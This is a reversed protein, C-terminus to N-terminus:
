NLAAHIQAGVLDEGDHSFQENNPHFLLLSVSGNRPNLRVSGSHVQFGSGPHQHPDESVWLSFTPLTRQVLNGCLLTWVCYLTSYIYLVTIACFFSGTQLIYVDFSLHSGFVTLDVSRRPFAALQLM